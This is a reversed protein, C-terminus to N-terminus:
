SGPHGARRLQPRHHEPRDVVALPVPHDREEAPLPALEGGERAAYFQNMMPGAATDMRGSPWRITLRDVQRAVGLGFHARIDNHSLYSGGSRVEVTQQVGAANLTLRAGIGDRNSTTGTLDFRISRNGSALDTRYLFAPGNNTTILVDLDGDRDFDAALKGEGDVVVLHRVKKELMRAAAQNITADEAISLVPSTM